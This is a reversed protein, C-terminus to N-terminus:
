RRRHRKAHLVGPAMWRCVELATQVKFVVDPDDFSRGCLEMAQTVRYQITNRHLIMAEAAAVYSRNRALFERLTERLWENREDDIALENLVEAVFHRLEDVDTAMLVVPAVDEYGVVRVGPGGNGALAVEKVLEAQQLSSRFGSLGDGTRGYAIHARIGASDFEARVRSLDPTRASEVSFWLRAEREDTPVMLSHEGVGLETAVLSRVQDFIAVADRTALAADVWLVVALHTGDLAYSLVKEARRVDVPGGALVDGVWHQLLGSRRSLWRDHEREYAVIVQDGVLDMFVSLRNVLETITPVRADPEVASVQQMAVEMFRAHGLRQSRVLPALPVDRRAAARVYALAAAPAELVDAPTDRDLYHIASVVGETMSAKWLDMMRADYNLGQIETRMENFLEFIFDDRILRMQRTIVSIAEGVEAM